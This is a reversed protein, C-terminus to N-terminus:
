KQDEAKLQSIVQFGLEIVRKHNFNLCYLVANKLDNNMSKNAKTYNLLLGVIAQQKAKWSPVNTLQAFWTENPQTLDIKAVLAKDVDFNILFISDGKFSFTENIKTIKIPLHQVGNKDYVDVFIPLEYLGVLSSDQKQTVSISATNGHYIGHYLTNLFLEPHGAKLFWQNFFWNLDRGTIEEFALRL